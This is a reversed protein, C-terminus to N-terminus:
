LPRFLKVFFLLVFVSLVISGLVFQRLSIIIPSSPGQERVLVSRAPPRISVEKQFVYNECYAVDYFSYIFLILFLFNIDRSPFVINYMPHIFHITIAPSSM